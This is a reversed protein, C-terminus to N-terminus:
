GGCWDAAPSFDVPWVRDSAVVYFVVVLSSLDFFFKSCDFYYYIKDSASDIIWINTGDTTIGEVTATTKLTGATWSGLLGGSNSYVYVKRNTDVVWLKDGAATVAIGRSATNSIAYNEVTQGAAGYEYTRDSTADDVVYFKTPIADNDLNTLGVDAPNLGNYSLDSSTAAGIIITYLINGDVILDDVGTVTVTQLM